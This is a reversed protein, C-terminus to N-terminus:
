YRAPEYYENYEPEDIESVLRKMVRAVMSSYERKMVRAVMSKMSRKEGDYSDQEKQGRKMVRAVYNSYDRKMIRSIMNNLTRKDTAGDTSDSETAQNNQFGRGDYSDQEKQGRKM